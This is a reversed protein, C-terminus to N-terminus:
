VSWSSMVTRKIQLRPWNAYKFILRETQINNCSGLGGFAKNPVSLKLSVVNKQVFTKKGLKKSRNKKHVLNKVLFRISNKNYIKKTWFIKKSGFNRQVLFRKLCLNKQGLINKPGVNNHVQNMQVLNGGRFLVTVIQIM